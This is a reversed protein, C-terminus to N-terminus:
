KKSRFVGLVEMHATYPMMDFLEIHEFSYQSSLIEADRLFTRPSCSLYLLTPASLETVVKQAEVSLGNRPPDIIVADPTTMHTLHGVDQSFFEIDSIGNREANAKAIEVMNDQLEVCTVSLEPFRKKMTIGITGTGSYLDFVKGRAPLFDGIRQYALAAVSTTIQFFADPGQAFTLSPLTPFTFLHLLTTTGSLHTYEKTKTDYFFVSTAPIEPLTEKSSGGLIVMLEAAENEHIDLFDISSPLKPALEQAFAFTRSKVTLCEEVLFLEHTLMTRQMLKGSRLYFRANNRYHLADPAPTISLLPTLGLAKKLARSFVEVKTFLTDDYSLMRLHCAGCTGFHRCDPTIRAPATKHFTDPLAYHVGRTKRIVRPSFTEGPLTFPVSFLRGGNSSEGAFELSLHHTKLITRDKM